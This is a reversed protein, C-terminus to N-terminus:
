FGAVTAARKAEFRAGHGHVCGEEVAHAMVETALECGDDCANMVDEAIVVGEARDGPLHELTDGTRARPEFLLEIFEIIGHPQEVSGRLRERESGTGEIADEVGHDFPQPGGRAAVAGPHDYLRM